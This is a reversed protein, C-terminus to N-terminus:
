PPLICVGVHEFGAPAMGVEWFPVCSTGPVAACQADGLEVDCFEGCCGLSDNCNPMVAADLCISGAQCINVWECPEGPVTGPPEATIICFFAEGTFYCAFDEPCDQLIPDCTPFCLAIVGDSSIPCEAGDPCEPMEPSGMCFAHCTGEWCFGTADCNDTSSIDEYDCSEGTAHDGLVPVCKHGTWEGGDNTYPVCKEGDPCAPSWPDCDEILTEPGPPTLGSTQTTPEATDGSESSASDSSASETSESQTTSSGVSSSQATTGLRGPGCSVCALLLLLVERRSGVVLGYVWGERSEVRYM